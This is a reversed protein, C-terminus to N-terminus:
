CVKVLFSLVFPCCGQHVVPSCCCYLLLLIVFVLVLRKLVIRKLITLLCNINSKDIRMEMREHIMHTSIWKSPGGKGPLFIYRQYMNGAAEEM